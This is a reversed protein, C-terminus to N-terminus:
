DFSKLTKVSYQSFKFVDWTLTLRKLQLFTKCANLFKFVDWTLTLRPINGKDSKSVSSKFVDWTLTLRREVWVIM